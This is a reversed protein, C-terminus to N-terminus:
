LSARKQCGGCIWTRARASTHTARSKRARADNRPSARLAPTPPTHRRATARGDRGATAHRVDCSACSEHATGSDQLRQQRAHRPPAQQQQVQKGLLV